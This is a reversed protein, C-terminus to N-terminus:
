VAMLRLRVSIKPGWPSQKLCIQSYMYYVFSVSPAEDSFCEANQKSIFFFDRVTLLLKIELASMDM